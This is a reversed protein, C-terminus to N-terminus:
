GKKGPELREITTRYYCCPMQTLPSALPNDIVVKGRIHVFGRPIASICLLPPDALFDHKRQNKTGLNCLYLGCLLFIVAGVALVEPIMFHPLPHMPGGFASGVVIPTFVM